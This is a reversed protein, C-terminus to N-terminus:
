WALSEFMDGFGWDTIGDLLGGFLGEGAADFATEKITPMFLDSLMDAGTPIAAEGFGQIVNGGFESVVDNGGDFMGALTGANNLLGFGTQLGLGAYGLNSALRDRKRAQKQADKSLDYNQDAFQREQKLGQEQLGFSRDAYKDQRRQSYLSSLMPTRANIEAVDPSRYKRYGTLGEQAM